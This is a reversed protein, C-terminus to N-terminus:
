NINKCYITLNLTKCVKIITSIKPENNFSELRSITAQPLGSKRALETQSLKLKKRTQIIEKIINDIMEDEYYKISNNTM